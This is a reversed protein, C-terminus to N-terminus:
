YKQTTSYIGWSRAEDFASGATREKPFTKRYPKLGRGIIIRDSGTQLLTQSEVVYIRTTGSSPEALQARTLRELNGLADVKKCIGFHLSPIPRAVGITIHHYGELGSCQLACWLLVREMKHTINNHSNEPRWM